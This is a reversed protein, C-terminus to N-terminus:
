TNLILYIDTHKHNFLAIQKAWKNLYAVDSNQFLDKM